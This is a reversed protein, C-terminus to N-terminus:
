GGIAQPFAPLWQMKEWEKWRSDLRGGLPLISGKGGLWLGEGGVGKEEGKGVRETMKVGSAIVVHKGILYGIFWIVLLSCHRNSSLFLRRTDVTNSLQSGHYQLRLRKQPELIALNLLSCEEMSGLNLSDEGGAMAVTTAAGIRFSHGSYHDVEVDSSELAERVKKVLTVRSLSVDRPMFILPGPARGRIALYATMAAVPCLKGGTRGVYYAMPNKTSDVVVDGTFRRM